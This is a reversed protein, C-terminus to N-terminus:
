DFTEGFQRLNWGRNCTALFHCWVDWNLATVTRSIDTGHKACLSVIFYMKPADVVSRQIFANILKVMDTQRHGRTVIRSASSPNEICKISPTKVSPRIFCNKYAIRLNEVTIISHRLFSFSWEESLQYYAVHRTKSGASKFASM